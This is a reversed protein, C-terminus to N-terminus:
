TKKRYATDTSHEEILIGRARPTELHIQVMGATIDSIANMTRILRLSKAVDKMKAFLWKTWKMGTNSRVNQHTKGTNQLNRAEMVINEVHPVNTHTTM